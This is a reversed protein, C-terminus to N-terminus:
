VEGKVLPKALAVIREMENRAELECPVPEVDMWATEQLMQAREARKHMERIVEQQRRIIDTYEDQHSDVSAMVRKIDAALQETDTTM